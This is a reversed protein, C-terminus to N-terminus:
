ASRRRPRDDMPPPADPRHGEEPLQAYVHDWVQLLFKLPREWEPQVMGARVLGELLEMRGKSWRALAVFDETLDLRVEVITDGREAAEEAQRRASAMMIAFTDDFEDPLTVATRPLASDERLERMRANLHELFDLFELLEGPAAPPYRVQSRATM